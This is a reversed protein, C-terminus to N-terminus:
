RILSEGELRTILIAAGERGPLSVRIEGCATEDITERTMEWIDLLEVRYKGDTPLQLHTFSPCTRGYYSLQHNESQLMMPIQDLIFRTQAEEPLRSMARMFAKRFDDEERNEAASDPDNPNLLGLGKMPTMTEPIGEILERLFRIRQPSKGYLVGGKAWWLVEDERHFTEGHTCYGGRMLTWWFRHAMEFASLNGWNYPIDGEYGCEDILIPLDYEQQWKIVHNIDGSQISCHTMWDRKPYALLCNHVSIPHHYPDEAAILEGFLDFDEFDKNLMLDYENALSWWVNKYSALRAICYRLYALDNDRGLNSFGWRDYPHFLILDAEMHLDALQRIRTELNQWYREDPNRVDWKGDADTHFPYFDPDNHNYPMHKPFVCLRIKNFPSQKLTELTKQQLAETQHVFAYCTTGFPIYRTGDAYRFHHGEPHVPGHNETNEICNFTGEETQGGVNVTYRWVGTKQPMFRVLYRDKGARFAPVTIKIGNQEFLAAQEVLGAGRINELSLEFLDYKKINIM